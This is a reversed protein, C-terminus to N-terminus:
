TTWPLWALVRHRHNNRSHEFTGGALAVRESMGILGQRAGPPLATPTATPLDNSVELTLGDRPTGTLALHVAEGPAHKRANT